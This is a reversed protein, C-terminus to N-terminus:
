MGRKGYTARNALAEDMPKAIAGVLSGTDMVVKMKEISGKLGALDKHIRYVGDIVEANDNSQRMSAYYDANRIQGSTNISMAQSRNFLTDISRIGNQINGLDIIPRIVPQTDIDSDLMSNLNFLAKNVTDRATKAISESNKRVLREDEAIGLAFGETFYKGIRYMEKSPSHIGLVTRFEHLIRYALTKAESVALSASDRIGGAIGRVIYDGVQVFKKQYSNFNSESRSVVSSIASDICKDNNRIGDAIGKVYQAGVSLMQKAGNRFAQVVSSVIVSVPQIVLGSSSRIGDGVTKVLDSGCQIANPKANYFTGVFKEVSLTASEGISNAFGSLDVAGITNLDAINKKLQDIWETDMKSMIKGFKQYDKAFSILDNGFSTLNNKGKGDTNLMTVMDAMSQAVETSRKVADIDFDKRSVTESYGVIAEGFTKLQSGFSELDEKNSGFFLNKFSFGNTEPLSNALAVVIDGADKSAKIATADIADNKSVTASYGVIAEGFATLQDGFSKLNEKSGFITRMLSWKDTTPLNDALEAMALGAKASAEVSENDIKGDVIGSYEVIANGFATLQESFTQLNEKTGFIISKLSGKGSDPLNKALDALVKGANASSEVAENDIKGSVTSSYGVLAMGFLMLQTGFSAFNLKSGTLKSVVNDIANGVTLATLAKVLNVVGDVSDSDIQKAGIIFGQANLMFMTLQTGIKVLGSMVTTTFGKVIGGVFSGLGSGIKELVSIGRDLFEEAEPIYTTLTGLGFMIIGMIKIIEVLAGIGILVSPGLAGVGALILCSASLSLLLMSLAKSVELVSTMDFQCMVGLIVGLAAVIATMVGAAILASASVTKVNSLILLSASFATLLVALGVAVSTASDTPLSALEYVVLGLAGVVATLVLISQLAEKSENVINTAAMLLAFMGMVISISATANQLKSADDIASLAALVIMLGAVTVTLMGITKYCDKAFHTAVLLGSFVLAIMAISKIAQSLGNPDLKGLVAIVGTLLILSGSMALITIGAKAADPGAFHTMAILAAFVLTLEAIAKAAKEITSKKMSGLAAIVPILLVLSGSIALISLGMKLAGNGAASTVTVLALLGGFISTLLPIADQIEKLPLDAIKSMASILAKISVVVALLGVEGKWNSFASGVSLLLLGGVMDMFIDINKRAGEANANSIDDIVGVLIKMAFAMGVIGAFDGISGNPLALLAAQILGMIVAMGGLVGMNREIQSQDLDEMDHLTSILIKLAAVFGLIGFSNISSKSDGGFRSIAISAATMIATLGGIVKITDLLKEKPVFSLAIFSGAMVAIATSLRFVAEANKKNAFSSIAKATATLVGNINLVVKSIAGIGKTLSKLADTVITIGDTVKKVLFILGAGSLIAVINGFNKDIRERIPKLKEAFKGLSEQIKEFIDHIKQRLKEISESISFSWDSANKKTDSFFDRIKEGFGSIAKEVDEISAIHIKFDFKGNFFESLNNKVKDITKNVKDIAESVFPIESISEFCKVIEDKVISIVKTMYELSKTVYDNEKIWDRFKSINDGIKATFGLIDINVNGLVKSLKSFAFKTADTIITKGIDLISFLGSFTRKLKGAYSETDKLRLSFNHVADIVNFLGEPNVAFTDHWAEKVSGIVAGIGTLTNRITDIALERGGDKYLANILDNVPTGTQEAQNALDKFAQIQEKTYGITKITETTLGENAKVLEEFNVEVGNQVDSVVKMVSEYDYGITTLTRKLGEGAKDSGSIIGNVVSELSEAKKKVDDVDYVVDGVEDSISRIAKAIEDGSVGLDKMLEISTKQETNLESLTGQYYYVDKLVREYVATVDMGADEIQKELKEWNSSLADTLFANRKDASEDIVTSFRESLETWLKKGEEFDGVIIEWTQAWGSQAAEKLTDMMMSLTKVDQAAAFAKKGIDTNADAYRGLTEILVESTMWQASLSENFARTANFAESVHGNMDTTTSIYMDGEKTLTGLAEATKILENKFGVTAMNANEISKWDILKVYGASLAQAFNYMAHSAENANAGSLAAANSVGMIAAVADDLKVGANTFKGINTTMDQFSYITKDSYTNLDELYKNVVELSEGTSAIITQVSGMKLEYESFGTKVPDITLSKVVQKGAQIASNTINTLATVAVVDMAHFKMRVSDVASGLGLLGANKTASGFESLGKSMAKFNLSSKLRDLTTMSKKVGDEFQRNDFRM